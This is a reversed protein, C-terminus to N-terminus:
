RIFSYYFFMFLTFGIHGMVIQKLYQSQQKSWKINLFPFLLVFPLMLWSLYAIRNIFKGYTCLLFVCNTLTYTCWLFHYMNSKIKKNVILYYGIFIPIASYLYFDPRFGSVNLKTNQTTQLYGIGQEDSFGSFLRMFVTVHLIAMLLCFFWGYLYAKPNKYYHAIVFAVIPVMMSHHFGLSLWLFFVALIKKNQCYYGLAVLYIAAASGAKIGNTAFSFTSFAGLYVVFALLTDKPFILKSAWLICTFYIIAILMFFVYIDLKLSAMWYYLNDFIFNTVNKDFHFPEGFYFFYYFNNYPVMDSFIGDVPRFGIFLTLFISIFLALPMKSYNHRLFQKYGWKTYDNIAFITFITVFFLYIPQYLSAPM